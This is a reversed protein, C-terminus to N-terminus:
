PAGNPKADVLWSHLFNSVGLVGALFTSGPRSRATARRIAPVVDLDPDSGEATTDNGTDFGAPSLLRWNAAQSPVEASNM